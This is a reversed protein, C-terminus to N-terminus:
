AVGRWAVGRWVVSCWVVAWEVREAAIRSGNWIIGSMGCSM